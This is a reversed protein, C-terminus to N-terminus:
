TNQIVAIKGGAIDDSISIYETQNAAMRMKAATATPNTGIDVSCIADAHLRVLRTKPNLAASQTSGVGITIVQDNLRPEQASQVVNRKLERGTNAYETIYLTAM